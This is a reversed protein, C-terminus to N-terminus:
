TSSLLPLLSNMCANYITLVQNKDTYINSDFYTQNDKGVPQYYSKRVENVYM